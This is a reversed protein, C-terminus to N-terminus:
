YHFEPIGRQVRGKRINLETYLESRIQCATGSTSLKLGRGQYIPQLGRHMSQVRLRIARARSMSPYQIMAQSSRMNQLISESCTMQCCFRRVERLLWSSQSDGM